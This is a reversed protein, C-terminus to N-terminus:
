AAAVLSWPRNGHVFGIGEINGGLSRSREVLRLRGLKGGGGSGWYKVKWFEDRESTM